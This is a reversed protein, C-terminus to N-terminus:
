KKCLLKTLSLLLELVETVTIVSMGIWLGLQGGIDRLLQYITYDPAESTVTLDISKMEVNIITLESTMKEYNFNNYSGPQSDDVVFEFFQKYLQFRESNNLQALDNMMKDAIHHVITNRQPWRIMRVDVDYSIEACARPCATECNTLVDEEELLDSSCKQKRRFDKFASMLKETSLAASDNIFQNISFCYPVGPFDDANALEASKCQCRDILQNQLCSYYCATQVYNGAPHRNFPYQDLCRGYPYGLLETSRMNVFLQAVHGPPVYVFKEQSILSPQTGRPHIYVEVGARGLARHFLADILKTINRSADIPQPLMGHGDILAAFWELRNKPSGHKKTARGSSETLSDYTHCRSLFIGDYLLRTGFQSQMCSSKSISDYCDVLFDELKTAGTSITSEDLDLMIQPTWEMLLVNQDHESLKNLAVAVKDHFSRLSSIFDNEAESTSNSTKSSNLSFVRYIDNLTTVDFPRMDCVTILPFMAADKRIDVNFRKEYAFYKHLLQTFQFSFMFFAGLFVLLWFFRKCVSRSRAIRPVGHLSTNQGFKKIAKHLSVWTANMKSPVAASARRSGVPLNTFPIQMHM